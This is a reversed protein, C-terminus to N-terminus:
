NKIKPTKQLITNDFSFTTRGSNFIEDDFSIRFNNLTKFENLKEKPAFVINFKRHFTMGYVNEMECIVPNWSKSGSKLDIMSKLEFNLIQAREAFEEYNAVGVSTIDFKDKVDEAPGITLLFTLNNEYYKQISDRYKKSVNKQDKLEMYVLYESPMFKIDFELDGIRQIKHLGNSEDHQWAFFETPTLETKNCSFLILALLIILYNSAKM